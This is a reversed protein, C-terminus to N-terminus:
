TQARVPGTRRHESNIFARGGPHEPSIKGNAGGLWPSLELLNRKEAFTMNVKNLVSFSKAKTIKKDAKLKERIIGTMKRGEAHTPSVVLASRESELSEIYKDALSIMDTKTHFRM